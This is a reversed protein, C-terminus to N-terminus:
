TKKDDCLFFLGSHKPLLQLIDILIWNFHDKVKQNLSHHLMLTYKRAMQAVAKLVGPIYELTRRVQALGDFGGTFTSDFQFRELFKM